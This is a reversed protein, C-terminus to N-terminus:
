ATLQLVREGGAPPAVLFPVTDPQDHDIEEEELTNARFIGQEQSYEMRFRIPDVQRSQDFDTIWQRLIPDTAVLTEPQKADIPSIRIRASSVYICHMKGQEPMSEKVAAAVPCATYSGQLGAEIHEKTVIIEITEM